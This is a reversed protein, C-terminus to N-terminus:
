VQFIHITQQQVGLVALTQKYLYLGQNHSLFIKDNQFEWRDTVQGTELEVICLTYTEVHNRFGTVSENNHFMSSTLPHRSDHLEKAAGVIVYRGDSTFLSCERNLQEGSHTLVPSFKKTFFTDFLHQRVDQVYRESGALFHESTSGQLLEGAADSGEFEYIELATQDLSFAIFYQGTPSFKRLYCPPKEVNTVSFNPFINKYFQRAL